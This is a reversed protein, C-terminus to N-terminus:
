PEICTFLRQKVAEYDSRFETVARTPTAVRLLDVVRRDSDSDIEAESLLSPILQGEVLNSTVVVRNNRAPDAFRALVSAARESFVADLSAEPADIVLSGSGKASAVTMLTMRFALDVFERQSESVQEPGTRRVASPFDSGAMEFDFAPFGVLPGTQGVRSKHPAWKIDSAEFLFEEAFTRFQEIIVERHDAIARMDKRVVAEFESRIQDLELKLRELRGRLSSVEASQERLTREDPPLQRVLLAVQFRYRSVAADLEAVDRVLADFAAEEDHRASASANRTAELKEVDLTLKALQRSRRPDRGSTVSSGCIV